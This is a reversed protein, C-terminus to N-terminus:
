EIDSGREIQRRMASASRRRSRTAPAESQAHVLRPDLSWLRISVGRQVSGLKEFSHRRPPCALLAKSHQRLLECGSGLGHQVCEGAYASDRQLRSLDIWWGMGAMLWKFDVLRLLSDDEEVVERHITNM